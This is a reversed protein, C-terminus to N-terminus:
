GAPTDGVAKAGLAALAYAIAQELVLQRGEAWAAQFAPEDLHARLEALIRQYEPTNSPQMFTGLREHEAEAAGLLRAAQALREQRPAIGANLSGAATILANASDSRNRREHALQLDLCAWQKARKHDGAQQALFALNGYLYTIRGSEGTQQCVALCEEYAAQARARDGNVRAIEGIINLTQAVGPLHGLARFTALAEEALPLATSPEHLMTYGFFTLAWAAQLADGLARACDLARRILGRGTELDQLWALRGASILFKPHYSVPVEDLRALLQQTWRFGEVHYGKGYWFMGLASALRVGLTVGDGEADAPSQLSWALAARINDLELEFVGCWRDYGALRLEPEAREALALFYAAHRQRLTAAEGSAELRQRAYALIMELLGFRPEGEAADQQQVLSKDVLSALGDFVDITLGDACVAKIAELSRGGQFVALRAFLRQEDVSLLNYSWAITDWLTRQRPPVDRVNGALVQFAAEDTAGELRALLSQPTLLKCRAAALEIALPLGDLRICIRAIAPANADTVEFRPLARRARQVFLAGAESDMLSQASVGQAPPLALPPVAYEQEGSLRLPERSTVLLTLQPAAALLAALLPAAAIVHEFNDILLLIDRPALVRTLTEALTEDRREVVGLAGAIAKPVLAHDTLPALDVFRVGDGFAGAIEEAVQLALRTKGTGGAGTLTLLRSRELLERVEARERDRGIFPTSVIPLHSSPAPLPARAGDSPLLGLSQAYAIAQTRSKVGLKAYIQRNYWKVTHLSLYLEDAIQQDSRGAALRRLIATEREHLQEPAAANEEM